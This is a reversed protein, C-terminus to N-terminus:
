SGWGGRRLFSGGRNHIKDM